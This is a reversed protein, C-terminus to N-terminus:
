TATEKAGRMHYSPNERVDHLLDAGEPLVGGKEGMFPSSTPM